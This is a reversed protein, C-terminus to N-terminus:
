YELERSVSELPAEGHQVRRVNEAFSAFVATFYRPEFGAVHPTVILRPASWLPSAAPLPEEAFVDCAASRLKGAALAAALAAADVVGGRSVDILAAHRPLAAIVRANVMGRTKSTLPVCVLLYDAHRAAEILEEPAYTHELEPEPRASHRVASVRLGFAAASRAVRSGVAGYGLLLLRQGALPESPFPRWERRGQQTFARPLDRATALLLALAHDRVGDAHAGRCNAIAVESRLGLAPFLPDVGSGAIQLLRLRAAPTFDLRPPRGLLLYEIATLHQSLATVSTLFIPSLGAKDLETQAERQAEPELAM